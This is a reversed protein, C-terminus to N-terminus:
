CFVKAAYFLLRHQFFIFIVIGPAAAATTVAALCGLSIILYNM